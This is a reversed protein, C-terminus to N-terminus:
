RTKYLSSKQYETKLEKVISKIISAIPIAMLMGILGFLNGGIILVLMTAFASLGVKDGVLKPTIIIGEIIQIILFVALIGFLQEISSFNALAVILATTFGISFGAYPIISILGAFIGILPGFKLRVISLGIAYLIGLVLAVMLQGRIYGSLVTNALVMYHNIKPLISKPIFSKIERSLKEYDNIVYFFFLPILFINLITILWKSVGVFSSQLAKSITKLLGGSIESIHDRIYTGVSDRGLDIPYGIKESLIEVKHLAKLSNNPLEKLFLTGDIILKPLVLSFILISFIIILPQHRKILDSM